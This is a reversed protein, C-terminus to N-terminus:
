RHSNSVSISISFSAIYSINRKSYACSLSYIPKRKFRGCHRLLFNWTKAFIPTFFQSETQANTGEQGSSFSYNNSRLSCIYNKLLSVIVTERNPFAYIGKAAEAERKLKEEKAMERKKRRAADETELIDVERELLTVVKDTDGLVQYDFVGEWEKKTAIETMNILIVKGNKLDHVQRALDKVLRKIGVVKLSTGMVVLLDPKKRLDAMTIDAILDGRPHHENYLIIDPRLTGVARSRMNAAARMMSKENCDPCGPPTGDIFVREFEETFDFRAQCITCAVLNMNGHLQVVKGVQKKDVMQISLEVREELCDINQTYCRLLKGKTDLTRIFQHTKTHNAKRLVQKLEGM